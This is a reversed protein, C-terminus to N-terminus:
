RVARRRPANVVVDESYPGPGGDNFARIRFSARAGRESLRVKVSHEGRDFWREIENWAGDGIRAEVRYGNVTDPPASWTLVVEDPEPAFAALTPRGAPEPLADVSGLALMLRAGGFFPADNNVQTVAYGLRSGIPVMQLGDGAVPEERAAETTTGGSDLTVFRRSSRPWPSETWSVAVQGEVAAARVERPEGIFSTAPALDIVGGSRRGDRSVRTAYVGRPWTSAFVVVYDEGTWVVDTVAPYDIEGIRRPGEDLLDLNPGLRFAYVRPSEQWAVLTNRGDSGIRPYGAWYSSTRHIQVIVPVSFTSDVTFATIQQGRTGVAVYRSGNWAVDTIVYDPGTLRVPVGRQRGDALLRHAVWGWGPSNGVVIFEDGNSAAVIGTMGNAIVQENWAGAHTRVGSFVQSGETWIFLTGSESSAVAHLVQDTARYGTELPRAETRLERVTAPGDLAATLLMLRGGFSLLRIRTTGPASLLEPAAMMAGKTSLHGFLIQTAESRYAVAYGDGIWALGGLWSRRASDVMVIEGVAGNTTIPVAVVHSTQEDGVALYDEGDSAIALNTVRLNVQNSSRSVGNRDLTQISVNYYNSAVVAFGDGNSAIDHDSPYPVSLHERGIPTGAVDLTLAELSAGRVVLVSVSGNFALKPGSGASIFFQKRVPTGDREVLTGAIGSEGTAVVLFHTGNWIVAPDNRTGELVVRATRATKGDAVRAMSITGRTGFFVYADVGDTALVANEAAALGYRTNGLPFFSGHVGDAASAVGSLTLFATVLLVHLKLRM